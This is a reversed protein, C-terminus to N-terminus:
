KAVKVKSPRLVIGEFSYGRMAEEVVTGSEKGEVELEELADHLMPDFPKGLAEIPELGAGALTSDLQQGIFNLGIKLSEMDSSNNAQRLALSFNDIVPILSEFVRRSARQREEDLRRATQRKYNEFEAAMYALKAEADALKQAQEDVVTDESANEIGESDIQTEADMGATATAESDIKEETMSTKPNKRKNSKFFDSTASKFNL